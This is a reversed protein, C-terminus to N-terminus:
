INLAWEGRLINTKYARERFFEEMTVSNSAPFEIDFQHGLEKILYEGLTSRYKKSQCLEYWNILDVETIFGRIRENLGTQRMVADIVRAEAKKCVIVMQDAMIRETIEGVQELSLTIHKVQIAPGFNAWMDLGADAANATGIRYLKAPQSIEPNNADVGLVLRAFSEFDHLIDFRKKDVSITVKAKLHSVISEFLAYVIIEYAKDVSRRLSRDDFKNIFNKLDFTEITSLAIISRLESIKDFRNRLRNFIYFEVVGQGSRNIKALEQISTPPLIEDDFLQLLYRWNLIPKRGVLRPCIENRWNQLVTRYSTKDSLDIDNSTRDRYLIEAILIPKYLHVRAKNILKDLRNKASISIPM